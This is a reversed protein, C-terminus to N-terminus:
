NFNFMEKTPRLWSEYKSLEPPNWKYRVFEVLVSDGLIIFLRQRTTDPIQHKFLNFVLEVLRQRRESQQTGMWDLLNQHQMRLNCHQCGVVLNDATPSGGESDADIHVAHWHKYTIDSACIPCKGKLETGMWIRWVDDRINPSIRQRHKVISKIAKCDHRTVFRKLERHILVDLAMRVNTPDELEANCFSGTALNKNTTQSTPPPIITKVNNETTIKSKELIASRFWSSKYKFKELADVNLTM